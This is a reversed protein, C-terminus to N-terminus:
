TSTPSLPMRTGAEGHEQKRRRAPPRSLLSSSDM